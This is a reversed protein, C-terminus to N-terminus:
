MDNVVRKYDDLEAKRSAQQMDHVGLIRIFHRITALMVPPNGSFQRSTRTREKLVILPSYFVWNNM